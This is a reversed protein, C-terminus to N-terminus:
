YKKKFIKDIFNEKQPRRPAEKEVSTSDSGEWNIRFRHKATERAPASTDRGYWGYEENLIKKLSEKEKRINNKVQEGAAKMDYSVKANEGKGEIKLLLSTKGLGDDTVNDFESSSNRNKRVKNSLLESLLMKVHYQYENDFSHDGNVSLDVASSRIDMQPLYFHNNRIFFDNELRDFKINELESLRIFRSLAKVPEFNILSGDTIVFKGQATLSRMMPNLMSDVPLILTVSGSLSGAINEAKLFSQGFNHFSKFSENINVGTVTFSGRGTFSKDPHQVVLGNGSVKGEQSNFAVARFNVTKPKLSLTGKIREACFKKYVLTDLNFAVELNVDGPLVLPARVASPKEKEGTIGFYSEPRICSAAVSASGELRVQHGAVWEPFNYLDCDLTIEQGNLNFRFNRTSTTESITFKGSMNEIDVPKDSLKLGFSNFIIESGSRIALFDDLSYKSKKGIRGSFKLDFGISGGTLAVNKLNLFERIEGPYLTGRFMLGAKPDTFDSVTLSGLYDAKGFRMKFDNVSFSSTESANRSGNNYNGTFSLRDINYDSKLHEIHVNKLSLTLDYHPDVRRSSIGKVTYTLSLNGSPKYESALKRYRAPLYNEMRSIDINNGKVVIDVYNDSAVYGTLVFDQNEVTMTSKRFFYGKKNRTVGFQLRAPVHQWMTFKKLRFQNILVDSNGEFDLEKENIRSKLRGNKVNGQIFLNVNLDNYLVNVDSLNIRNLNVSYRSGPHNKDAPKSINFNYHAATDTYLNLKGYKITIGTFTYVGKLLDTMRFDLWASKAYLLTDTNTGKFLSKEFDPSSHVLVNKLEFSARPFKRLLSLRTSGAELRTSFNSNISKLILGTVKDQMLLSASFLIVIVSIVLISVIKLIKYFLKM